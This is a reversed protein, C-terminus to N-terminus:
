KNIFGFPEGNMGRCGRCSVSKRNMAGAYCRTLSRKTIMSVNSRRRLVNLSVQLFGMTLRDCYVFRCESIQKEVRRDRYTENVMIIYSRSLWRLAQWLLYFCMLPRLYTILFTPVFFFACRILCVDSQEAERLGANILRSLVIMLLGLLTERKEMAFWNM